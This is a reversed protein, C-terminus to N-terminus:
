GPAAGAMHDAIIRAVTAPDDPTITPRIRGGVDLEIATDKGPRSGDLNYWHVLDGSGWLRWRGRVRRLPWQKLARVTRYPIRRAGWPYYWRITVGDADCVIRGDDYLNLESQM